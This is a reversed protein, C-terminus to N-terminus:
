PGPQGLIAARLLDNITAATKGARRHAVIIAWREMRNHFLKFQSRPTYDIEYPVVPLGLGTEV